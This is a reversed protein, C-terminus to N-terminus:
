PVALTDWLLSQGETHSSGNMILVKSSGLESSGSPIVGNTEAPKSGFASHPPCFMGGRSGGKHVQTVVTAQARLHEWAM